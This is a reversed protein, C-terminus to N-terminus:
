IALRCSAAAAMNGRYIAHRRLEESLPWQAKSTPKASGIMMIRRCEPLAMSLDDDFDAPITLWARGAARRAM